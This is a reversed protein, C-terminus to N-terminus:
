SKQKSILAYAFSEFEEVKFPKYLLPRERLAAASTDSDLIGGTLFGFRDVLDPFAAEVAELLDFGTRDPM